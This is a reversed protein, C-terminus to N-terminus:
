QVTRRMDIFEFQCAKMTCNRTIKFILDAFRETLSNPEVSKTLLHLIESNLPFNYGFLSNILFIQAQKSLYIFNTLLKDFFHHVRADGKMPDTDNGSAGQTASGAGQAASGTGQAASGAGQAASGAGKASSGAEQAASGAGQAVSGADEAPSDIAKSSAETGPVFAAEDSAQKGKGASPEETPM